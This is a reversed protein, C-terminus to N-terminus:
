KNLFINVNSPNIMDNFNNPSTKIPNKIPIKNLFYKDVLCKLAITINIKAILETLIM